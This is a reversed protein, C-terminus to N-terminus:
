RQLPAALRTPFAPLLLSTQIGALPLPPLLSIFHACWCCRREPPARPTVSVAVAVGRGQGAGGPLEGDRLSTDLCVDAVAYLAALEEEDPRSTFYKVPGGPLASGESTLAGYTGCIRGVLELLQWQLKDSTDAIAAQKPPTTIQILVVESRVEPRLKLLHEFALLKQIV